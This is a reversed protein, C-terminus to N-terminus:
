NRDSVESILWSDVTAFKLGTTGKLACCRYTNAGAKHVVSLCRRLSRDVGNM